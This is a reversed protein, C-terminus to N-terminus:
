REFSFKQQRFLTLCTDVVDADYQKDRGRVIEALAKEIGLGERYPRHSSMAEVVDAVAVIRAELCIADNKLGQPYGSGDLREHHQHAIDAVPWPFEIDKLIDYGVQPHEKMLAYENETLRAPKSLLEAPMRIKGIDHIMGGWRIGELRENDLGIETGIACALEAVRHQHGATYPDRAELASAIAQITGELSKRLKETAERRETIDKLFHVSYDYEGAEDRVAYSHSVFIRGDSIQIEEEAEEAGAQNIEWAQSCSHMPGDMRPFVQWYPLGTIEDIDMDAQRAYAHNARMINGHSDHLFIPDSVADFTAEWEKRAKEAKGSTANLDELMFLMSRRAQEAGEVRMKLEEEAKKHLSIDRVTAQLVQRGNLQMATLRVAAPFNTGDLKTHMWEFRDSGHEFARAIHENALQRSDQGNPQQDPSFDCPHRGLFQERSCCGFIRLATDNCDFFGKNDLLMIADTSTEFLLRYKTELQRSDSINRMIATFVWQGDMRDASLRMIMQFTHGDKRMGRMEKVQGIIPASANSNLVKRIDALCAQKDKKHLLMTLPRARAEAASYGFMSEAAKNWLIIVGKEDTCTIADLSALVISEPWRTKMTM